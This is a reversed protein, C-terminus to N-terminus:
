RVPAPREAERCRGAGHRETQRGIRLCRSRTPPCRRRERVRRLDKQESHFRRRRANRQRGMPWAVALRRWPQSTTDPLQRLRLRRLLRPRGALDTHLGGPHFFRRDTGVAHDQSHGGRRPVDHRASRRRRALECARPLRDPGHVPHRRGWRPHRPHLLTGGHRCRPQCRAGLRGLHSLFPEGPGRPAGFGSRSRGAGGKDASKASVVVKMAGDQLTSAFGTDSAAAPSAAMGEAGTVVIAAATGAAAQSGKLRIHESTAPRDRRPGNKAEIRGRGANMADTRLFPRDLLQLGAETLMGEKRRQLRWFDLDPQQEPRSENKVQRTKDKGDPSLWKATWGDPRFSLFGWKRDRHM